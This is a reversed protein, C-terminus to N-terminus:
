LNCAPQGERHDCSAFLRVPDITRTVPTTEKRFRRVSTRHKHPHSVMAPTPLSCRRGGDGSFTSVASSLEKIKRISGTEWTMSLFCRICQSRLPTGSGHLIKAIFSLINRMQSSKIPVFDTETSAPGSGSWTMLRNLRSVGLTHHDM